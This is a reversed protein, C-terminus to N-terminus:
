KQDAENSSDSTPTIDAKTGVSDSGTAATDIPAAVNVTDTSNTSTGASNDSSNNCSMFSLMVLGAFLNRM